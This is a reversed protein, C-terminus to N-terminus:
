PIRLVIGAGSILNNQAGTYANPMWTRVWHAEVLRLALHRTMTLDAGGGVQLAKGTANSQVGDAASPFVSDMGNAIGGLAEGFLRLQHSSGRRAPLVFTYRPGFTATVLTLNVGTGHINSARTTAVDAVVGLGRYMTSSLQAGGGQMWFGNGGTTNGRQATYTLAVDLEPRTQTPLQQMQGHASVAVLGPVLMAGLLARCLVTMM